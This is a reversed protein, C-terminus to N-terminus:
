CCCTARLNRFLKYSWSWFGCIWCFLKREGEAWCREELERPLKVMDRGVVCMSWDLMRSLVVSEADAPSLRPSSSANRRRRTLSSSRIHFTSTCAGFSTTRSYVDLLRMLATRARGKPCGLALLPIRTGRFIYAGRVRDHLYAQM